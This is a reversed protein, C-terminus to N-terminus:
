KQLAGDPSTITFEIATTVRELDTATAAFGNLTSIVQARTSATMQNACFLLNLQDVLAAPNKANPLLAAYDLVLYPSPGTFTQPLTSVDRFMLATMQNPMQLSFYSDTIQLEPAVLGAAAMPGSPSYDPSFFNFVTASYMAQQAVFYDPGSFFGV